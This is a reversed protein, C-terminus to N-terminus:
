TSFVSRWFGRTPPQPIGFPSIPDSAEVRREMEEVAVIEGQESIVHSGDFGGSHARRFTQTRGGIRSQQFVPRDTDFFGRSIERVMQRDADTVFRMSMSVTREVHRIEVNINVRGNDEVFEISRFRDAIPFFEVSM